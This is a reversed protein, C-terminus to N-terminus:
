FFSERTSFKRCRNVPMLQQHKSSRLDKSPKSVYIYAGLNLDFKNNIAKNLFVMDYLVLIYSIPLTKTTTLQESYNQLGTVWSLCEKNFNELKRRYILSPYWVQSGYLLISQVCLRYYMLKAASSVTYPVSRKLFQYAKRAAVLKNQIHIDWSINNSIIIGLDKISDVTPIINGKLLLPDLSVTKGEFTISKIKGINYEMGNEDAWETFHDTDLQLDLKTLLSRLKSDDAFLYCSSNEIKEPLDNIFIIFLLPGLVSGQPVGSNIDVTHSLFGNICVQQSRAYLYSKFLTLFDNDFGFKALKQLLIHYPVLDFAKRFDFYVAYTSRNIDRQNYLDDLYPLLQTIPSRKKTFGHQQDCISTRVQPYM